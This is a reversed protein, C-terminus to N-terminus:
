RARRQLKRRLRWMAVAPRWWLNGLGYNSRGRLRPRHRVPFEAVRFGAAVAQAPIFAQLLDMETLAGILERRMVRLQCGADHVGDRLVSRRVRNALASMARRVWNDHRDVRWGCALDARGSDVAEILVPFDEPDNQGDGDMTLVLPAQAIRLGSLLASGQGRHTLALRRCFSLRQALSDVMTATGDTSGDDAVIIEHGGPHRALVRDAAVVVDGINEAENYVPIVLSLRPSM